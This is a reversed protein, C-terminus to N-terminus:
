SNDSENLSVAVPKIALLWVRDGFTKGWEAMYDAYDIYGLPPFSEPPLQKPNVACISLIQITIPPESLLANAQM